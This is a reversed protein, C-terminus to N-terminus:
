FDKVKLNFTMPTVIPSCIHALQRWQCTVLLLFPPYEQFFDEHGVEVQIDVDLAGFLRGNKVDTLIKSHTLGGKNKRNYSPLYHEYFRLCKPKIKSIFQCQQIAVFKYGQSIIYNKTGKDRQQM